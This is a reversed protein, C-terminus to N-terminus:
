PDEPLREVIFLVAVASLGAVLGIAGGILGGAAIGGLLWDPTAFHQPGTDGGGKIFMSALFAGIAAFVVILSAFVLMADSATSGNSRHDSRPAAPEGSAPSAAGSLRDRLDTLLIFAFATVVGCLALRLLGIASFSNPNGALHSTVPCSGLGTLAAAFALLASSRQRSMNDHAPRHYVIM